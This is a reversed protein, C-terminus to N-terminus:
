AHEKLLASWLAAGAAPRPSARLADALEQLDDFPDPGFLRERARARPDKVKAYAENIRAFLAADQEPPHRKVCARYAARIADDSAGPEVGLIAWPDSM